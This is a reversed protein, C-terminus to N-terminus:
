SSVYAFMPINRSHTVTAEVLCGGEPGFVAAVGECIMDTIARTSIVKDGRTDNWYLELKVNPLINPDNNVEELAMTIAGSIALGQRDKLEGKIATLYLVNLTTTNNNNQSGDVHVSNILLAFAVLVLSFAQLTSM